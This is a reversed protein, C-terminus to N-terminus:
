KGAGARGGAAKRQKRHHKKVCRVKGSRKVKRKGKPCRVSKREKV